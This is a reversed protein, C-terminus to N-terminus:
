RLIKSVGRIAVGGKKKKVSGGKRFSMVKGDVIIEIGKSKKTAAKPGPNLQRNKKSVKMESNPVKYRKGDDKGDKTEYKQIDVHPNPEAMVYKGHKYNQRKM